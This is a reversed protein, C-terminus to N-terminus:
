AGPAIAARDITTLLTAVDDTAKSKLITRQM